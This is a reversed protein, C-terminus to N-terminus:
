FLSAGLNPSQGAFPDGVRTGVLVAEVPRQAASRRRKYERLAEKMPANITELDLNYVDVCEDVFDEVQPFPSQCQVYVASAPTPTNHASSTDNTSAAGVHGNQKADENAEPKEAHYHHALHLATIYLHLLVTASTDSTDM